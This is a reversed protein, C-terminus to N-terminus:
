CTKENCSVQIKRTIINAQWQKDAKSHAKSLWSHKQKRSCDSSMWDAALSQTKRYKKM